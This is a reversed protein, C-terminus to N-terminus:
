AKWGFYQMERKEVVLVVVMAPLLLLLLLSLFGLSRFTEQFGLYISGLRGNKHECSGSCYFRETTSAVASCARPRGRAYSTVGEGGLLVATGLEV